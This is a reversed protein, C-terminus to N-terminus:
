ARQGLRLDPRAEFTKEEPNLVIATQIMGTQEGEM